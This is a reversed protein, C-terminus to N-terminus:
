IVTLGSLNWVNAAVCLIGGRSFQAASKVGSASQITQGAGALTQFTIQGAGQQIWSVHTGVALSAPINITVATASTFRKVKNRDTQQLTYTAASVDEIVTNQAMFRSLLWSYFDGLTAKVEAGDAAGQFLAILNTDAMAASAALNALFRGRVIEWGTVPGAWRFVDGIVQGIPLDALALLDLIQAVTVDGTNTGDDALVRTTRTATLDTTGTPFIVDVM